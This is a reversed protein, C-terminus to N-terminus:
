IVAHLLLVAAAPTTLELVNLLAHPNAVLLPLWSNHCVLAPALCIPVQAYISLWSICCVVLARMFM